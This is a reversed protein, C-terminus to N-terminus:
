VLFSNVMRRDVMYERGEEELKVQEILEAAQHKVIDREASL